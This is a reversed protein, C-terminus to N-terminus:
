SLAVLFNRPFKLLFLFSRTIKTDHEHAFRIAEEHLKLKGAADEYVLLIVQSWHKIVDVDVVGTAPM